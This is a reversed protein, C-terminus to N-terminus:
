LPPLAGNRRGKNYTEVILDGVCRGLSAQRMAALGRASGLLGYAGGPYKALKGVMAARDVQGNYTAYVLGLGELLKGEVASSTRGWAAVATALTKDLTAGEDKRYLSKLTSVCTVVGDRNARDVRLHLSAAIDTVGVADAYGADRENRFLDFAPMAGRANLDIFLASASADDQVDEHVEVNVLLHGYGEATLAVLRHQGDVVWLAVVGGIGYEVAHLTGVAALNVRGRIKRITAPILKRQATPHPRLQDLRIRRITTGSKPSAKSM